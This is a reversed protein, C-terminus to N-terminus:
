SRWAQPVTGAQERGGAPRHVGASILAPSLSLYGEAQVHNAGDHQADGRQIGSSTERAV